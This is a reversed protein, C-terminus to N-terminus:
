KKRFNINGQRIRENRDGYNCNEKHTLWELNSLRNDTKDQNIHNADMEGKNEIPKYTELVLRHLMYQRLQGGKSLNVRMYGFKNMFPTLFKKRKYGWVQGDETIAYLNEYGPIDKM